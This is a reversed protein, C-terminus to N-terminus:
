AVPTVNMQVIIKFTNYIQIITVIGLVGLLLRYVHRSRCRKHLVSGLLGGGVGGAIMLILVAPDFEPLSRTTFLMLLSSTQSLLIIFLSYIATAKESSSFLITLVLINLPGGGIGLFASVLGLVLGAIVLLVPHHLRLSPLKEKYVICLLVGVTILLLLVAQCLSFWDGHLLVFLGDFAWKGLIGGAVAGVAILWIEKWNRRLLTKDCRLISVAAMSLVTCGSLFHITEVSFPSISDLVPRIIIGGGIGSIAGAASCCLAIFFCLLRM